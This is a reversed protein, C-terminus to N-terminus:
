RKLANYIKDIFNEAKVKVNVKIEKPYEYMFGETLKITEELLEPNTLPFDLVEATAEAREEISAGHHELTANLGAVLQLIMLQVAYTASETNNEAVDKLYNLMPLCVSSTVDAISGSCTMGVVNHVKILVVDGREIKMECLIKQLEELKQQKEKDM